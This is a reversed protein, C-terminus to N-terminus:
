GRGPGVGGMRSRAPCFFTDFLTLVAADDNKLPRVRCELWSLRSAAAGMSPHAEALAAWQNRVRGAFPENGEILYILPSADFFAIWAREQVLDADIKVKDRSGAASQSFLWQLATVRPRNSPQKGSLRMYEEESLVVAAAKNRKVIRVPPSVLKGCIPSASCGVSGLHMSCSLDNCADFGVIGQLVAPLHERQRLM